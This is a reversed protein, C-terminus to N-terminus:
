KKMQKGCCIIDCTRVCGCVTDVIIGLGCISCTYRSGKRIKAVKKVTKKAMM